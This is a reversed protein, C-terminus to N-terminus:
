AGGNAPQAGVALYLPEAVQEFNQVAEFRTRYLAGRPSLWASPKQENLAALKGLAADREAQMSRFNQEGMQHATILRDVQAQLAEVANCLASVQLMRIAPWGYPGHDAEFGRMAEILGTCDNM